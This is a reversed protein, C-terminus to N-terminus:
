WFFGLMKEEIRKKSLKKAQSRQAAFFSGPKAARSLFVIQSRQAALFMYIKITNKCRVCFYVNKLANLALPVFVFLFFDRM